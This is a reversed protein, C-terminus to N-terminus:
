KKISKRVKEISIGDGNIAGKSSKPSESMMTKDNIEALTLKGEDFYFYQVTYYRTGLINYFQSEKPIMVFSVKIKEAKGHMIFEESKKGVEIKKVNKQMVIDEGLYEFIVVEYLTGNLLPEIESKHPSCNNFVQYTTEKKCGVFVISVLMSFLLIKKM